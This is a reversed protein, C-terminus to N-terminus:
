LLDRESQYLSLVLQRYEIVNGKGYKQYYIAIKELRLYERRIKKDLVKNKKIYDSVNTSKLLKDTNQTAYKKSYGAKIVAQAANGSIIYLDAFKQVEFV